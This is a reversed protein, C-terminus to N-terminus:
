CTANEGRLDRTRTGDPIGYFYAGMPSRSLRWGRLTSISPEFGEPLVFHSLHVATVQRHLPTRTELRVPEVGARAVCCFRCLRTKCPAMTFNAIVTAKCAATTPDNGTPEVYLEIESQYFFIPPVLCCITAVIEIATPVMPQRDGLSVLLFYVWCHCM